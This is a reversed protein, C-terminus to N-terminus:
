RTALRRPHTLARPAPHHRLSSLTQQPLRRPRPRLHVDLHRPTAIARPTPIPAGIHTACPPAHDHEQGVKPPSSCSISSSTSTSGTPKPAPRCRPWPAASSARLHRPHLAQAVLEGDPSCLEIIVTACGSPTWRLALHARRGRRGPRDPRSRAPGPRLDVGVDGEITLFTATVAFPDAPDYGLAANVTSLTGVPDVCQLALDHTVPDAYLNRESMPM